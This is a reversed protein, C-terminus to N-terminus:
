FRGVPPRLFTADYIVSDVNCDKAFSNTIVGVEFTNLPCKDTYRVL